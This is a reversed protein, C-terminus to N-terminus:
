GDARDASKPWSASRRATCPLLAGVASRRRSQRAVLRPHRGRGDRRIGRTSRFASPPKQYHVHCRISEFAECTPDPQRKYDGSVVWVEGDREVRVQASGLIHGAHISHVRVGGITLPEGYAVTQIAADPLRRRLVARGAGRVPVRRSGPAAHDSHAHTVLARDVPQWPDIHFGGAECFLGASTEAIVSSRLLM